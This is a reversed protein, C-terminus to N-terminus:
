ENRKLKWDTWRYDGGLGVCTARGNAMENRNIEKNKRTLSLVTSLVSISVIM